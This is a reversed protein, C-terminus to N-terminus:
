LYGYFDGLGKKYMNLYNIDNNKEYALIYNEFSKQYERGPEVLFLNNM